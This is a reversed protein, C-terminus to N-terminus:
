VMDPSNKVIEKCLSLWECDPCTEELRNRSLPRTAGSLEEWTLIQGYGFCTERLVNADFLPPHESSCASGRRNPCQACLDDAGKTICVRTKPNSMLKEQMEAMNRSFDDSYGKGRFNLLCLGHHPRLHVMGAEEQAYSSEMKQKEMHQTDTNKERQDKMDQM